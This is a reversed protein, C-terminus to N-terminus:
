FVLSFASVCAVALMALPFPFAPRFRVGKGVAMRSWGHRRFPLGAHHTRPLYFSLGACMFLIGRPPVVRGCGVACWLACSFLPHGPFFVWSARWIFSGTRFSLFIDALGAVPECLLMGHGARWDNM